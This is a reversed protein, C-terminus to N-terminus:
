YPKRDRACIIFGLIYVTYMIFNSGFIIVKYTPVFEPNTSMSFYMSYLFLPPTCLHFILAGISIYFPVSRTVNLILDSQLLELYYMSISIIILLTGMILTFPSFSTFYTGSFILYLISGVLFVILLINLVVKFIKSTLHFKFYTIYFLASIILQINYLWYNKEWVTGRIRQLGDIHEIFVTYSGIIEIIVIFGLFVSLYFSSKSRSKLHFNVSFIFALAELTLFFLLTPNM